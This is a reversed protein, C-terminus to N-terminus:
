IKEIKQSIKQGDIEIIGFTNEQARNSGLSGPNFFLIDNVYQAFPKHTHGFCVLQAENKKAYEYLEMLNNKVHFRHGHTLLVFVDEVQMKKCTPLKEFLDSNGKVMILKDEFTSLEERVVDAGDGLFFILDPNQKTVLKNLIGRKNHIDSLVLIKMRWFTYCVKVIKVILFACKRRNFKQLM